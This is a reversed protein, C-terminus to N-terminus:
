ILKLNWDMSFWLLQWFPDNFNQHQNFLRKVYDLELAKCSTTTSIVWRPALLQLAWELEEKSSHISYSINWVGFIDRVPQNCRGKKRSEIDSIGDDCAYWKARNHGELSSKAVRVYFVLLSYM